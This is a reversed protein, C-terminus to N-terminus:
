RKKIGAYSNFTRNYAAHLYDITLWFARCFKHKFWNLDSSNKFSSRIDTNTSSGYTDQDQEILNPYLISIDVIKHRKLRPWCDAVDGIPFLEKLLVRAALQNIIYSSTFYGSKYPLIKYNSDIYRAIKEKASIDGVGPSLLIVEPIDSKLVPTIKKIIYEFNDPLIVDDELILAYPLDRNVVERYLKVHSLSCGIHAPVLPRCNLRLAKKNDYSLSLEKETLASGLVGEFFEFELNKKNFQSNISNRRDVDRKLNIVFINM